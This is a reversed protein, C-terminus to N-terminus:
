ENMEWSLKFKGHGNTCLDEIVFKEDIKEVIACYLGIPVDFEIASSNFKITDLIKREIRLLIEDIAQERVNEFLIQGDIM